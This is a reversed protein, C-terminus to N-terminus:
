EPQQPPLADLLIERRGGTGAASVIGEAEMREILDAARNYGIGLRRQLYSTSARCDRLVIAVAKLFLADADPVATEPEARESPEHDATDTVGDVYNPMGHRRLEAVIAEVDEDSVFAGHVRTLDGGGASLLMDGQGLLQEAGPTNLITRSDVKSAVKFAIRAPFNAKITGTVVDVSPRQTAMILHIGAARAMQALRQLSAEIEKGAVVMLDAFEDIVIVIHPMPETGLARTEHIAAGTTEDFGTQVQITLPRGRRAADRVRQNYGGINRVSLESMKKYREEMERVAWDLASVAKHPDTIVPTLLHPIGNYVSLELMKPDVMLMRLRDPGHRYLLSLIMANVGVSKGSGTTGAVLLHPMRALDAVVPEGDISKGLGIPLTHEEAKFAPSAIIERLAVTERTVNPLEIGLTNRGPVVAIRASPATMSRAIDDGLGIVRSAKIGRAIAIEYLTIVPGPRIEQVNAQVGFDGLVDQLLNAQGQLVRKDTEIAPRKRAVASLLNLSPPKYSARVGAQRTQTKALPENGPSVPPPPPAPPPPPYPGPMKSLPAHAPRAAAVKMIQRAKDKLKFAMTSIHTKAIAKLDLLRAGRPPGSSVARDGRALIRPLTTPDADDNGIPLPPPAPAPPPPPHPRQDHHGDMTELETDPSSAPRSADAYTDYSPWSEFVPGDTDTIGGRGHPASYKRSTGRQHGGRWLRNRASWAAELDTRGFGVASGFLLLGGTLGSLGILPGTLPGLVPQLFSGTVNYLVDGILGGFGYVLPWAEIKPISALGMALCLVAGAAATFRLRGASLPADFVLHLGWVIPAAVLFAASLGVTQVMLDSLIAGHAGVLNRLETGSNTSLSPDYKSWSILALWGMVGVLALVAGSVRLMVRWLADELASPLLRISNESTRHDAM